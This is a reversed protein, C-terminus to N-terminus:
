RRQRGPAAGAAHPPTPARAGLIQRVLTALRRDDVPKHAYHAIGAARATVEVEPRFDATTVIVPLARDLTRLCHALEPGAMDQLIVDVVVLRVCRAEVLRLAEDGRVTHRARLGQQRISRVLRRAAAGDRDAVLVWRPRDPAAPRM